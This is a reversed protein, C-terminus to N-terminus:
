PIGILQTGGAALFAAHTERRRREAKQTLEIYRSCSRLPDFWPDRSIASACLFGRDIATSLASIARDTENIRALHRASYFLVEPDKVIAGEATTIADLCEERNGELYARLSRMIAQVAGTTEGSRERERLMSLATREEGLAALAACDLYYAGKKSYDSVTGAYDGLLFYTHAASTTLHPDLHRGRMHAAISADLEDCYRCAQVLGAFLEPDNRRLRARELLRVMAKSSRGQDCEVPTYFNHAMALDPNLAFARTFARESREANLDADDGFKGLFHYVRGLGVLAPVYDPSEELCQLYLDRAVGMNDLTRNVTIQNARLYYEYASASAPVNRRSDRREREDLPIQLSKLIGECLEDQITFLDQMSSNASESWIVTGGPAEVLQCTLRFRDGARLLSGTLFADVEAEAAVRKPDPQGEFRAALLSSRIILNDMASLSNSIAEPLSCTLFDTQEDSKPARFPLVIIRSVTRIRPAVAAGGSLSISELAELMEHASSYRDEAHKAMARRIIRDLAEIERSGGLPAPNKNVVAYLVDALCAGEFPRKGTLMEYFITGVSFIDASPGVPLGCAQEPAMYLPTGVIVGPATFSGLTITRDLDGTEGVNRTRALGFDLLKVGHRTLFVNSPKLDRHVIGLDHLAQIAELIQREIGLAEVATITGTLLRDALSQGDLLELILVLATGDELVDYVQCVRPHNVRALSRAERWLRSRAGSGENPEHITKVAVPRLLRDDWGEYVVGMGGQGIKRRIRYHGISELMPDHYDPLLVGVIIVFRPWFSAPLGSPVLTEHIRNWYSRTVYERPARLGLTSEPHRNHASIRLGM